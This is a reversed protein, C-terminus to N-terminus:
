PPVGAGATMALVSATVPRIGRDSKRLVLKLRYCRNVHPVSVPVFDPAEYWRSGSSGAAPTSVSPQRVRGPILLPRLYQQRRQQRDIRGRQIVCFRPVLRRYLLATHQEKLLRKRDPWSCGVSIGSPETYSITGLLHLRGLCADRPGAVEALLCHGAVTDAPVQQAADLGSGAEPGGPIGAPLVATTGGQLRRVDGYRGPLLGVPQLQPHARVGLEVSSSRNRRERQSSHQPCM